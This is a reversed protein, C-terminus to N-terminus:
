AGNKMEKLVSVALQLSSHFRNSGFIGTSMRHLDDHINELSQTITDRFLEACRLCSTEQIDTTKQFADKLALISRSYEKNLFYNQSAYYDRNIIKRHEKCNTGGLPCGVLEIKENM